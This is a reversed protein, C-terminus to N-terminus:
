ILNKLHSSGGQIHTAGNGPQSVLSFWYSLHLQARTTMVAERSVICYPWNDWARAAMVEGDQNVSGYFM